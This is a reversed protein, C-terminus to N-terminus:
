YWEDRPLRSLDLPTVRLAQLPLGQQPRVVEIWEVGGCDALCHPVARWHRFGFGAFYPTDRDRLDRGHLHARGPDIDRSEWDVVVATAARLLPSTSKWRARMEGAIEHSRVVGGALEIREIQVAGADAAASAAERAWRPMWHDLGEFAPLMGDRSARGAEPDIQIADLRARAQALSDGRKWVTALEFDVGARGGFQIDFSRSNGILLRRFEVHPNRGYLFCRTMHSAYPGDPIFDVILDIDHPETAGRAYSGFVCLEHVLSLPSDGQGSDIRSLMEQLLQTAKERKM